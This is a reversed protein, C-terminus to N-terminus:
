GNESERRSDRTLLWAAIFAMGAMDVRDVPEWTRWIPIALGEGIAWALGSVCAAVVLRRM